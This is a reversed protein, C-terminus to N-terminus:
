PELYLPGIIVTDSKNGSYDQIYIGLRMTDLGSIHASDSRPYFFYNALDLDLSAKIGGNKQFYNSGIM